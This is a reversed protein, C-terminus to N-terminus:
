RRAPEQERLAAAIETSLDRVLASLAAANEAPSGAPREHRSERNVLVHGHGDGIGWRASLVVTGDPQPEFRLVAVTVTYTLPTNAYWPYFVVRDLDLQADLDVSLAHVFNDKLPEAWRNFEDFTLQNAASRSVMEPRELYPPLSIPGIGLVIGGGSRSASDRPMADLVYFQTTPRPPPFLLSCGALVGALVLPPLAARSRRIRLSRTM